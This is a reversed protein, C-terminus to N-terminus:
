ALEWNTPLTENEMCTTLLKGVMQVWSAYVIHKDFDLLWYSGAIQQYWILEGFLDM